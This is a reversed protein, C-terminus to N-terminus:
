EIFLIGASMSKETDDYLRNSQHFYSFFEDEFINKESLNIKLTEMIENFIQESSIEVERPNVRTNYKTLIKTCVSYDIDASIKNISYFGRELADRYHKSWNLSHGSYILTDSLDFCIARIKMNKM